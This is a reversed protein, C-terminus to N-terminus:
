LYVLVVKVIFFYEGDGFEFVLGGELLIDDGVEVGFDMLMGEVDLFFLDM